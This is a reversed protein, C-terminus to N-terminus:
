DEHYMEYLDVLEYIPINRAVDEDYGQEKILYEIMESKRMAM